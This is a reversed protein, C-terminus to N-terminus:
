VAIRDVSAGINPDDTADVVITEDASLSVTQAALAGAIKEIQTHDTLSVLVSLRTRPGSGTM